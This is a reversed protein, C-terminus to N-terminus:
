PDPKVRVYHCLRGELATRLLPPTKKKSSPGRVMPTMTVTCYYPSRESDGANIATPPAASPDKHKNSRSLGLARVIRVKTPEERAETDKAKNISNCANKAALLPNTTTTTTTTTSPPSPPPSSSVRDHDGSQCSGDNEYEPIKHGRRLSAWAWGRSARRTATSGSLTRTLAKHSLHTTNPLAEM